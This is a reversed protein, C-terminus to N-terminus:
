ELEGQKKKDQKKWRDFDNLYMSILYQTKVFSDLGM